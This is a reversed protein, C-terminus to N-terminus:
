HTKKVSRKPPAAVIGALKVLFRELQAALPPWDLHPHNLRISVMGHVATRLDLAVLEADSATARGADICRQVALTMGEAARRFFPLDRRLLLTSESLVKYLGFNKEAWHAHAMLRARLKDVPDRAADEEVAVSQMLRAFSREIVAAVLADRDAFHLYVSTAAVGVARAVARLSLTEAEGLDEILATAAAVIEDRLQQGEGRPNTTRQPAAKAM